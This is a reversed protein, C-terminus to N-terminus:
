PLPTDMLTELYWGSWGSWGLWTVICPSCAMTYLMSHCLDSAEDSVAAPRKTPKTQTLKGTGCKAM